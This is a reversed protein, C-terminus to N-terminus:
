TAHMPDRCVRAARVLAERGGSGAACACTGHRGGACLRRGRRVRVLLGLAFMAAALPTLDRYEKFYLMGSLISFLTWAIQLTPVIVLAPFMM